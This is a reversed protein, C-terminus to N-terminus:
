GFFTTAAISLLVLYFSSVILEKLNLTSKQQTRLKPPSDRIATSPSSSGAM